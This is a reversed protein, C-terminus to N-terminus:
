PAAIRDAAFGAPTDGDLRLQLEHTSGDVELTVEIAMGGAVRQWTGTGATPPLPGLTEVSSARGDARLTLDMVRPDVLGTVNGQADLNETTPDFRWTAVLGSAAGLARGRNLFLRSGTVGYSTSTRQDLSRTILRGAATHWTGQQDVRGNVLRRMSGDANFELELVGVGGWRGILAPDNPGPDVVVAADGAGTAGADASAVQADAAGPQDDDGDCGTLLAALSVCLGILRPISTKM